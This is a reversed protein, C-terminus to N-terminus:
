SRVDFIDVTQYCTLLSYPSMDVTVTVKLSDEKRDRRFESEKDSHNALLEVEQFCIKGGKKHRTLHISRVCTRDRRSEGGSM